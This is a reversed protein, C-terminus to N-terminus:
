AKDIIIGLQQAALIIGTNSPDLYLASNISNKALSSDGHEQALAALYYHADLYDPALELAKLFCAKAKLYENKTGYIKGQNVYAVEPTLYYEDRVLNNWIELAEPEQKNQALFCAYNNLVEGKLVAPMKEKLALAFFRKTEEFNQLKFLLTAKFALYEANTHQDLAKDIYDLARKYALLETGQSGVERSLEALSLKYYNQALKENKKKGCGAFVCLGFILLKFFCSGNMSFDKREKKINGWGDVTPISHLM